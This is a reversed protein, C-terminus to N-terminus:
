MCKEYCISSIRKPMTAFVRIEEILIIVRRNKIPRAELFIMHILGKNKQAIYRSSSFAATFPPYAIGPRGDGVIKTVNNRAFRIRRPM